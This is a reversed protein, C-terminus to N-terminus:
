TKLVLSDLLVLQNSVVGEKYNLSDEEFSLNDVVVCDLRDDVFGMSDGLLLGLTDVLQLDFRDGMLLGLNDVLPLDLNGMLLVDLRDVASHLM